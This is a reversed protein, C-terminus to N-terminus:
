KALFKQKKMIIYGSAVSSLIFLLFCMAFLFWVNVRLGKDNMCDPNKKIEVAIALLVLTLILSLLSGIGIYLESVGKAKEGGYCDGGRWNCFIYSVTVTVLIAGMVLVAVLGNYIFTSTCSSSIRSFNNASIGFIAFGAIGYITMFIRDITEKSILQKEISM